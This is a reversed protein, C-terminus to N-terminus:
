VQVALACFQAAALALQEQEGAVQQALAEATL